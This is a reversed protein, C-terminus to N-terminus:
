ELFYEIRSRMRRMGEDNDLMLKRRGVKLKVKMEELKIEMIEMNYNM